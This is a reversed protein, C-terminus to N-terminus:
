PVEELHLVALIHVGVGHVVEAGNRRAVGSLDHTSGGEDRVLLGAGDALALLRAQSCARGRAFAICLVRCEGVDNVCATHGVAGKCARNQELCQLCRKGLASTSLLRASSPATCSVWWAVAHPSGVRGGLSALWRVAGGRGWKGAAKEGLKMKWPELARLERASLLLSRNAPPPPPVSPSRSPPPDPLLESSSPVLRLKRNTCGDAFFAGM